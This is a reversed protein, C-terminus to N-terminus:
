PIRVAVTVGVHELGLSPAVMVRQDERRHRNTLVYATAFGIASGAVIDTFWHNDTLLRTFATGAGLVLLGPTFANPYYLLWPTIFAFATTSHGSPFSTNGSFPRFELAGQNQFPRARGFASKL